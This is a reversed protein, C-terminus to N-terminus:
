KRILTHGNLSEKEQELSIRYGENRATLRDQMLVLLEPAKEIHAILERYGVLRNDSFEALIKKMIKLDFPTDVTWRWHSLDYDFYFHRINFSEPQKWIFPTVHERESPLTANEFARELAKLTFTEVDLGEPYTAEVTNSCYDCDEGEQLKALAQEVIQPDKMPDDATLRVIRDANHAKAAFYFRGLVDSESGIFTHVKADGLAAVYDTIGKNETSEGTAIVVTEVSPAAKVRDILWRLLPVGHLDALVKGPFRTSGMRAQIIAVTKM